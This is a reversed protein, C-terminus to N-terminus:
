GLDIETHYGTADKRLSVRKCKLWAPDQQLTHRQPDILEGLAEAQLSYPGKPHTKLHTIQVRCFIMHQIRVFDGLTMVWEKLLQELSEGEVVIKERLAPGVDELHILRTFLQRAVEEFLAEPTPSHVSLRNSSSSPPEAPGSM